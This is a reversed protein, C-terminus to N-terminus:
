FISIIVAAVFPIFLNDDVGFEISEFMMTLVSSVLAAAFSVFIFAGFFSFVMAILTGEVSKLYKYTRKSLLKGFIHSMADGVSLIMMAALATKLPFLYLVIISGVMFLIPGKGPLSYRFEEREFRDMVWSAIPVYFRTCLKSLIVGGVLIALMHYINFIRFYLLTVLLIGFTMHLLQRRLELKSLM